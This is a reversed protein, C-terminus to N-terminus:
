EKDWDLNCQKWMQFKEAYNNASAKLERMVGCIIQGKEVKVVPCQECTKPKTIKTINKM